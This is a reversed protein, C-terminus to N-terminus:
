MITKVVEALNQDFMADVEFPQVAAVYLKTNLNAGAARSLSVTFNSMATVQVPKV